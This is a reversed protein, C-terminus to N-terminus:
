SEGDYVSDLMYIPPLVCGISEFKQRVWNRRKSRHYLLAYSDSFENLVKDTVHLMQFAHKGLYLPEVSGGMAFRHGAFETKYIVEKVICYQNMLELYEKLYSIFEMIKDDGMTKIDVPDYGLELSVRVHLILQMLSNDVLTNVCGSKMIGDFLAKLVYGDSTVFEFEKFLKVFRWTALKDWLDFQDGRTRCLMKRLRYVLDILWMSVTWDWSSKDMSIYNKPILKWGGGLPSWGSQCPNNWWNLSALDNMHDFLMHDIIQDVISVSSILRYAKNSIKKLKHPEPKVFLRIPDADGKALRQCVMEWVMHERALDPKGDKTKFLVGNTPYTYVYPYGPSSNWDIKTRVVRLFHDKSMFDDPLDWHLYKCTDICYDLIKMKMTYEPGDTRM